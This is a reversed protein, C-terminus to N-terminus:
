GRSLHFPDEQLSQEVIPAVNDAGFASAFFGALTVGVQVTAIFARPNSLLRQVRLAAADGDDALQKIRARRVSVTAIEAANLFANILILLLIVGVAGLM